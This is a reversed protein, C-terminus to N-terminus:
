KSKPSIRELLEGATTQDFKIRLKVFFGKQSFEAAEFDEDSFGEVNYGVSMWVNKAPTVGISPGM